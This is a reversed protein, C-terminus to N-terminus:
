ADPAFRYAGDKREVRGQGPHPLHYGVIRSGDGALRDLLASRTEAGMAPDQDSGSHWDPKEFSVLVNSIADGVVLVSDSTGHVMFSMHGPTHGHTAVAEIGPIVEDGAAFTAMRDEIAALRSQAGVVFTKREEPMAALTEPSRWFDLEGAGMRYTANPFLPEDFDDIVGWLHDPHAHTFVVDTVEEPDIGAEEMAAPLKGATPMFNPGSGVDFVVFRDGVRCFTINCDPTFAEPTGGHAAFFADIDSRPIDPMIFGLPLMLHGDSLVTIEAGGLDLAAARAARVRLGAAAAALAAGAALLARRDMPARPWALSRTQPRRTPLKTM